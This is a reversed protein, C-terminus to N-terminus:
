AVLVRKFIAGVEDELVLEIRNELFEPVGMFQRKPITIKFTGRKLAMYKFKVDGTKYFMAWFFRRMKPTIRVTYTAGENHVRAHPVDSGVKVAGKTRYTIRPSRKLRSSRTLLARTNTKDKRPEWKEVSRNEIWGGRSWAGKFFEVAIRGALLPVKTELKRFEKRLEDFQELGRINNSM